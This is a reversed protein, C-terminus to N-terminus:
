VSYISQSDEDLSQSATSAISDSAAKQRSLVQLRFDEFEKRRESDSSVSQCELEEDSDGPSAAYTILNSMALSQHTVEFLTARPHLATEGSQFQPLPEELIQQMLVPQAELDRHWEDCPPDM